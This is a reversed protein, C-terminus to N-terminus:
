GAGGWVMTLRGNQLKMHAGILDEFMSNLQFIWFYAFRSKKVNIEMFCLTIKKPSRYTLVVRIPFIHPLNRAGFLEPSLISNLYLDFNVKAAM